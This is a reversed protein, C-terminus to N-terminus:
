DQPAKHSSENKPGAEVAVSSQLVSTEGKFKKKELVFLWAMRKSWQTWAGHQVRPGLAQGSARTFVEPVLHEAAEKEEPGAQQSQSQSKAAQHWTQGAKDQQGNNPKPSVWAGDIQSEM